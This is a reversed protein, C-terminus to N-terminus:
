QDSFKRAGPSKLTCQVPMKKGTGLEFHVTIQQGVKLDAVPKELMAHYSGPKFSLSQGPEVTVDPVMAMASMGNKESTEHLMSMGFSETEIGKLVVPESKDQNHLVFFGGSPAVNPLLRIWCDEIRLNETGKETSPARDSKAHMDHNAHHGDHDTGDHHALAQSTLVSASLLASMLIIKNM